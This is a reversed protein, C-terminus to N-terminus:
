SIMALRFLYIGRPLASIDLVVDTYGNFDRVSTFLGAANRSGVRRGDDAWIKLLRSSLAGKGAILSDLEAWNAHVLQEYAKSPSSSGEDFAIGIVDRRGAGGADLLSRLGLCMRPDFGKGLVFLVHRDVNFYSRWFNQLRPGSEMVYNHWRASGVPDFGTM